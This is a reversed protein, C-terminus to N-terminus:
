AEWHVKERSIKWKGDAKELSFTGGFAHLMGMYYKGKVEAKNTDILRINSV